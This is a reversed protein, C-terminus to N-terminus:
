SASVNPKLNALRRQVYPGLGGLNLLEALFPPFPSFAHATGQTLNRICGGALDVALRDGESAAQAAEPATIAVLGINICNRYFIRGYSEAIILAVGTMRISVPASERSSGCGFNRGAVIVDGPQVRQTFDPRMDVFCAQKLREPQSNWNALFRGPVIADTDVDDGFKWVTHETMTM